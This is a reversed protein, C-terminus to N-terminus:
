QKLQFDMSYTNFSIEPVINMIHEIRKDKKHAIILGKVQEGNKAMEKKIFGMYGLIQGVASDGAMGKKLEIVLFEKKDKSIALIDIIGADGAQFQQGSNNEDDYIDYNESLYTKAWDRVLYDELHKELLSEPHSDYGASLNNASIYEEGQMLSIIEDRYKTLSHLTGRKYISYYLTDSMSETGIKKYWKVRRSHPNSPDNDHKEFYYDSVVEGVWCYKKDVPMVVIDGINVKRIFAHLIWYTFWGADYNKSNSDRFEQWTEPVKGTLDGSVGFGISIYGEEYANEVRDNNSGMRIRWYNKLDDMNLKNIM